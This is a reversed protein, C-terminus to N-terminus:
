NLVNKIESMSFGSRLLAAQVKEPTKRLRLLKEYAKQCLAAEDVTEFYEKIADDANQKSIGRAALEASLRIRGEAHDISRSRLWASAYRRDDLYSVSELYDLAEKVANKDIGKHLLKRSLGFRSQEARALYTMAACEASYVLAANLLDAAETDSVDLPTGYLSELRGAPVEKLYTMRLFFASGAEPTIEVVDPLTQKIGCIRM